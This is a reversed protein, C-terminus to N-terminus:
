RGLREFVTDMFRKTHTDIADKNETTYEHVNQRYNMGTLQTDVSLADVFEVLKENEEKIRKAEEFRIVNDFKDVTLFVQELMPEGKNPSTNYIFVCPKHDDQDIRTRLLSGCNVLLKKGISSGPGSHVIFTKHNDGSVILDFKSKILLTKAYTHGEQGEWIKEDVIMKHCVLINIGNGEITEPIDEHWSAGYIHVDDGPFVWPDKQLLNIVKSAELVKLPTNLINSSHYRLDHQGFVTYIPIGAMESHLFNILFQKLFDNAKHSEFFDGPQLIAKCGYSKGIEFTQGIKDMCAGLVDDQRTKIKDKDVHWDGSILFKM